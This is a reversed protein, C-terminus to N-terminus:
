LDLLEVPSKLQDFGKTTIHTYIETTKSSSHGLLSQIYRLDTGNELLHTAFSHRLSHVTVKKTIAAKKVATIFIKRISAKSYPQNGPGEFLYKKPKYERYYIRILNLTKPALLTYRDKKGKAQAVRIQMRKSDIDTIALQILESIRLGASYITMLIAKHKLNEIANLLAKVEELSLVVPLTKEKIPRELFYFKRQGGLVREYYFKIANISQNQYSSSVKRETVLYRMFTIIMSEDIKPLDFKHYYNSFEEFTSKYNKLTSESYRLERLKDLYEEPCSRYNPISYVNVRPVGKNTSPEEEFKFQLQEAESWSKLLPIYDESYPISWWKNNKDYVAFPLSQINKILRACYKFILKIRNTNSKIALLENKHYTYTASPLAISESPVTTVKTLRDKFYSQILESNGPYNPISWHFNNKIWRSYRIQRIFSIDVENKPMKLILQKRYIELTIESYAIPSDKNGSSASNENKLYTHKPFLSKLEKYAPESYPIHWCQLREDWKIDTLSMVKQMLLPDNSFQLKIRFTPAIFIKKLLM